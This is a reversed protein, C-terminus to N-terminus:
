VLKKKEPANESAGIQPVTQPTKHRSSERDSGGHRAGRLGRVDALELGVKAVFGLEMAVVVFVALTIM